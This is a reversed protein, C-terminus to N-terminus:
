LYGHQRFWALALRIAEELPTHPLGLERRAKSGDLRQDQRALQIARRPLLPETRTLAAGLESVMAAIIAMVYPVKWRPPRVGAKQAVLRAFEGLTLNRDSLLYREGIRGREAALVHATGVDGTYVANFHHELYVPLRGKAFLLVLRGSFPRADYEGICVSPNVIVVPLGRQVYQMVAHEMAIKVTAYLPRWHTLPWPEYDRETALRGIVPAITAASSTYVIRAVPNAQLVEFVRRIQAVGREIAQARQDTFGTLFGNELPTFRPYFGACHFVWECGELANQLPAPEDLNLPIKEVPLHELVSLYRPNRYSARVAYGNAM